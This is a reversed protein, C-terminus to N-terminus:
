LGLEECLQNFAKDGGVLEVLRDRFWAVQRDVNGNKTKVPQLYAIIVAVAEPSLNDKMAEFLVDEDRPNDPITVRVKKGDMTTEYTKRRRRKAM